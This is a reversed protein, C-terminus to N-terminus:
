KTEMLLGKGSLLEECTGVSVILLQWSYTMSLCSEAALSLTQKRNLLNKLLLVSTLTHTDSRAFMERPLDVSGILWAQTLIWKRIFELGPNTLISDPLVIALRGGPKLFQLCREIFLHEPPMSTRPAKAGFTSLEYQELIHPDDIPLRSGFPPNTVVVDFQELGVKDSASGDWEGVPTLSNARVVNTSGDGHLALNMQSARVLEALKDIGYINQDCLSKLRSSTHRQAEKEDGGWKQHEQDFIVDNLYILTARLFGGTGCAPDLIKLKLHESKPYTSFLMNIALDCVNRPTFFAGHDRRSTVNVIEEYAEGKVDSGTQILSFKQLEAVCYALSRNDLEIKESIDPFIFPYRERVKKFIESIRGALKKQGLANKKEESTVSFALDGHGETEDYIKCFILKLFEFFAKEKPLSANVHLYNHARRFVSSLGNTAPVLDSFHLRKPKEAGALPIDTADLFPNKSSKKEDLEKELALMEAGVWLGWKCRLSASMYSKLQEIGAKKDSPRVDERKAEVITKILEQKHEAGPPFIAIDVRKARGSGVKVPFEIHLDDRDYGYEEVLSRAVRQRVHEEPTEKRLVGHHIYCPMKGPPISVVEVTTEAPKDAAM